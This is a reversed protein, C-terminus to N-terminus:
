SQIESIEASSTEPHLIKTFVAGINLNVGESRGFSTLVVLNKQENASCQRKRNSSFTAICLFKPFAKKRDFLLGSPGAHWM